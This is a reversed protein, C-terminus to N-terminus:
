LQESELPYAAHERVWAMRAPNLHIEDHDSDRRYSERGGFPYESDGFALVFQRKLEGRIDDACFFSAASCLGWHTSFQPTIAGADVWALYARYFKTLNDSQKKM